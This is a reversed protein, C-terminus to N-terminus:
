EEEGKHIFEYVNTATKDGIGDLDTLRVCKQYDTLRSGEPYKEYFDLAWKAVTERAEELAEKAKQGHAYLSSPNGWVEEMLSTMIRIATASMKTTAANDAYIMFVQEKRSHNSGPWSYQNSSKNALENRIM